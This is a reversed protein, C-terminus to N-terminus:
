MNLQKLLAEPEGRRAMKTIIFLFLVGFFLVFMFCTTSILGIEWDKLGM